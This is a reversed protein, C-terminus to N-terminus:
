ALTTCAFSDRLKHIVSVHELITHGRLTQVASAGELLTRGRLNQVTSAHENEVCWLKGLRALKGLRIQTKSREHKTKAEKILRPKKNM